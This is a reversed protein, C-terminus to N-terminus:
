LRWANIDTECWEVWLGSRGAVQRNQMGSRNGATKKHYYHEGIIYSPSLFHRLDTFYCCHIMLLLLVLLSLPSLSSLLSSLSYSPSLKSLHHHRTCCCTASSSATCYPCATLLCIGTGDELRGRREGCEKSKFPLPLLLSHLSPLPLSGCM